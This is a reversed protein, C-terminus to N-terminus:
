IGIAKLITQAEWDYALGSLHMQDGMLGFGNAELYTGFGETLDIFPCDNALALDHTVRRMLSQRYVNASTTLDTSYPAIILVDGAAKAATIIAQANTRYDSPSVGHIMDGVGINLITLDQGLSGIMPIPSWPGTSDNIDSCQYSNAGGNYVAVGKIASSNTSVGLIVVTGSTREVSASHSGLSTSIGFSGVGDTPSYANISATATGSDFYVNFQGMSPGTRYWGVFHDINITPVIKLTNSTTSNVWSPGGITRGANAAWGAGIYRRPDYAALSLGGVTLNQDSFFGEVNSPIGRATLLAQLRGPYSQNWYGEATGNSWAGVVDSAGLCLISAYGTNTRVKALAANIKRLFLPNNNHIM